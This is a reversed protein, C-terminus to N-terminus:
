QFFIHTYWVLCSKLISYYKVQFMLAGQIKVDKYVFWAGKKEIFGLKVGCDVMSSVASIGKGFIVDQRFGKM